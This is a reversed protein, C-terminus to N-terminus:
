KVAEGQMQYIALARGDPGPLEELRLTGEVAIGRYSYEATVGPKMTVLVCDYLAAGPGFCCEMNDRVLVFQKIGKNRPTPFMFGRIRIRKNLLSEAKPTLMSREFKAAKDMPFKLDDFTSEMIGAADIKPAGEPVGIAKSDATPQPLPATSGVAAAQEITAAREIAPAVSREAQGLRSPSVDCGSCLLAALSAVLTTRRYDM